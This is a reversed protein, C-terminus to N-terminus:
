ELMNARCGVKQVVIYMDKDEDPVGDEALYLGGCFRSLSITLDIRPGVLHFPILIRVRQQCSWGFLVM